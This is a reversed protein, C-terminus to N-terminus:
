KVDGYGRIRASTEAKRYELFERRYDIDFSGIAVQLDGKLVIQKPLWVGDFYRGMTMSASTEGVRVLWQGPFFDLGLNEFDYRVIQSEAPDIWLTVMSVKDMKREITDDPDKDPDKGQAKRRERDRERKEPSDRFLQHPYYEIKYVDRGLLKERGAFAYSGEDFRFKMFYASSVFRPEANSKVLDDLGPLPKESDVTVHTGGDDKNVSIATDGPSQAREQARKERAKERDEEQKIWSAEAKRRDYEPVKVGDASIPSRVFIGTDSPFWSYERKFGYIKRGNLASIQFTEDEELTYQQLKKWNEDRRTLVQKMFADLDSQNGTATAASSTQARTDSVTAAAIVAACAAAIFFRSRVTRETKYRPHSLTGAWAPEGVKDDPLSL